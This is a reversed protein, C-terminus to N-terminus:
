WLLLAKTNRWYRVALTCCLYVHLKNWKCQFFFGRVSTQLNKSRNNWDRILVSTLLGLKYLEVNAQVIWGVKDARNPVPFNLNKLVCNNKKLSVINQVMLICHQNEAGRKAGWLIGKWPFIVKSTMWYSFECKDEWEIGQCTETM